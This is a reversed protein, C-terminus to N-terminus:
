RKKWMGLSDLGDNVGLKYGAVFSLETRLALACVSLPEGNGMNIRLLHHDPPTSPYQQLRILVADQRFMPHVIKRNLIKVV